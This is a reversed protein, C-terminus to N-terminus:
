FSTLGLFSKLMKVNKPRKADKIITLKNVDPQVGEASLVFGLYPLKHQAWLCKDAGLRLGADYFRTLILRL